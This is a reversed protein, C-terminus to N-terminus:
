LARVLEKFVRGREAYNEFMDFSSCAPSLLVVDGPRAADRAERVAAPYDEVTVTDASSGLDERMLGASAGLLILKRVRERVLPELVRYSGGKHVGGAILVVPADFSALSKLVAGTNTGKSDNYYRVGDLERVFELRHEIGPFRRTASRIHRGDVGAAKAACLAAMINEANHVGRLRLNRLPLREEAGEGRWVIDGGAVFAGQEVESWGFSVVRADLEHRLGWVWPDDRNLVAVDDPRQAAFIRAKTAGYGSLGDYRELHDESLNLFLAVRPRFDQVWELQFSSVEVVGWDWDGDVYEILPSGINGGAFARLGAAELIAAVLRTTTTKGNTGTVAVMPTTTFRAALEIESLVEIGRGAAAALLANDRPVGPSPVVVDVGDLWATQEPGFHGAAELRSLEGSALRMQDEGRADVGVVRAGRGALFRAVALGTRALGLVMIKRGQIDMEPTGGTDPEVSGAEARAGILNM